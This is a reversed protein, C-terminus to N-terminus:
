GKLADLKSKLADVASSISTYDSAMNLPTPGNITNVTDTGLTMSLTKLQEAIDSLVAILEDSGNTIAFKGAKKVKIIAGGNKLVLDTSGDKTQKATPVLGPVFVADTIDHQRADQPDVIGGQSAKWVDLSRDSFVAYGTDGVAVPVKIYWDAGMPMSVPVNHVVPLNQPGPISKYRTQILPQIDVLQEGLVNVVVCPVMVKVQLLQGWFAQRIIEDQPLTETDYDITAPDYPNSPPTQYPM